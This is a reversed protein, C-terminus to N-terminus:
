TSIEILNKLLRREYLSFEFEPQFPLVSFPGVVSVSGPSIGAAVIIESGSETEFILGCEAYVESDEYILYEINTVMLGDIITKVFIDKYDIQEDSKTTIIGLNLSGIEQWNHLETCSSSFEVIYNNDFFLRFLWAESCSHGKPIAYAIIRSNLFLKHLQERSCGECKTINNTSILM